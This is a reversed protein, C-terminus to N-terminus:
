RIPLCVPTTINNDWGLWTISGLLHHLLGSRSPKHEAADGDCGFRMADCRDLSGVPSPSASSVWVWSLKGRRNGGHGVVAVGDEGVDVLLIRERGRGRGGGGGGM